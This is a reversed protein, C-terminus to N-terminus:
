RPARSFSTTSVQSCRWTQAPLIVSAAACAAIRSHGCHYTWILPPFYCGIATSFNRAVAMATLTFFAQRFSRPFGGIWSAYFEGHRSSISGVQLNNQSHATAEMAPSVKLTAPFLAYTRSAPLWLLDITCSM